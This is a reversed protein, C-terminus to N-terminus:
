NDIRVMRRRITYAALLLSLSAGLLLPVAWRQWFGPQPTGSVRAGEAPEQTQPPAKPVTGAPKAGKIYNRGSFQDIVHAGDPIKPRFLSAALRSNVKVETIQWHKVMIIKGDRGWAREVGKMPFWIEPEDLKQFEQVENRLRGMTGTETVRPLFGRERDLTVSYTVANSTVVKLKPLERGDLTETGSIEGSGADLLDSLWEGRKPFWLGELPPVLRNTGRAVPRISVEYPKTPPDGRPKRFIYNRQGDVAYLMDGDYEGDKSSWEYLRFKGSDTWIWDNGAVSGPHREWRFECKLRVNVISNRWKRVADAIQKLQPDSDPDAATVNTTAAVCFLCLLGAFLLPV